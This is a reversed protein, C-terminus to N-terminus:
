VREYHVWSASSRIALLVFILIAAFLLWAIAAAYGFYFEQFGIRFIYLVMTLTANNPGGQTMIYSQTFVQWSAIINIVVNFFITPTLLPVTVSFFKRFPGAGDISAAEYLQTPISRLGALYILMAGGASWTAMIILAPMAWNESYLWRPGQIGLDMLFSNILGLDPHYIWRWLLAVAVGSVVSPLYYVTRWIGQGKVGQSLLVAISLALINSLPVVTFTFYATNILAKEVLADQVAALYWQFGVFSSHTLFDTDFLSIVFSAIIPGVTFVLFGILWPSIMLYGYLAERSRHTLPKGRRWFLLGSDASSSNATVQSV